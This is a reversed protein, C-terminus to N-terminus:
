DFSRNKNSFERPTCGYAKRFLKYFYNENLIGVKEAVKGIPDNSSLLLQAAKRMRVMYIYDNLSGGTYDQFKKMVYKGTLGLQEGVSHSSLNPDSYNEDIYAQVSMVFAQEKDEENKQGLTHLASAVYEELYAKTEDLCKSEGIWQYIQDFQFKTLTGRINFLEKLVVYLHNALTMICSHINEYRMTGIYDFIEELLTGAGEANGCKIETLLKKELNEPYTGNENSMNEVCLQSNIIARKGYVYSYQMLKVTQRYLGSIELPHHAVDSYAACFTIHACREVYQRTEELVGELIVDSNGESAQVIGCVSNDDLQFIEAPYEKDMLESLVNQIIFLFLACDGDSAKADGQIDIQLKLNLVRLTYKETTVLWHEPFYSCIGKWVSDNEDTLLKEFQYRRMFYQKAGDKDVLKDHADKYLEMLQTFENVNSVVKTDDGLGNVFKVLKDIPRYLSQTILFIAIIYVVAWIVIMIGFTKKLLILDAFVQDYDQIM